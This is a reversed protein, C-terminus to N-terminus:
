FFIPKVIDQYLLSTKGRSFSKEDYAGVWRIGYLANTLFIEDASVIQEMNVPSVMVPISKEKLTDILYQRMVGAVIGESIPNTFITGDKIWFVNAITADAINNSTNLVLAENCKQEKAFNAALVYILASNSKLNSIPDCSKRGTLYTTLELGNINLETYNVPLAWTQIIFHLRQSEPDYLGGDGRFFNIRVRASELHGNKRCLELINIVLNKPTLFQPVEFGMMSM